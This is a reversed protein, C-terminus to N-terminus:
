QWEDTNQRSSQLEAPIGTKKILAQEGRRGGWGRREEQSEEGTQFSTPQELRSPLRRCMEAGILKEAPFPLSELADGSRWRLFGAPFCFVITQSLLAAKGGDDVDTLIQPRFSSRLYQHASFGKNNTPEQYVLPAPKMLRDSTQQFM